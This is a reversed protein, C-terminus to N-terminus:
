QMLVVEAHSTADVNYHAKNSEDAKAILVDLTQASDETARMVFGTQLSIYTIVQSKGQATGATKLQLSKFDDPTADDHSGHQKMATSTVIVACQGAPQTPNGNDGRQPCTENRVYEYEKEWTLRAIAAGQVPEEKRWKEGPKVGKPPFTWGLAFQAIWQHWLAQDDANLAELGHVDSAHGDDLLTFDVTADEMDDHPANDAPLLQTHLHIGPEGNAARMSQVQVSLWREADINQSEPLQTRAIRSEARTVKKMQYRVRYVFKQGAHLAPIRVSRDSKAALPLPPASLFLVCAIASARSVCSQARALITGGARTVSLNV